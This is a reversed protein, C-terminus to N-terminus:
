KYDKDFFFSPYIPRKAWLWNYGELNFSDAAMKKIPTFVAEPKEIFTIKNIKRNKFYINMTSCKANNSGIFKGADNKAFYLSQANQVVNVFNLQDDKFFGYLNKGKVQDSITRSNPYVVFANELIELKDIKQNKMAITIEIGTMQTSDNWIVPDKYFRFTSDSFSYFLSDCIAQMGEKYLRTHHYAFFDRTTDTASHYQSLLTDATLYMSDKGLDYIMWANQWVKVFSIAEKYEAKKGFIDIKKITDNWHFNDLLKGFGVKREYYLSDSELTNEGDIIKTNKGFSAVDRKTDFWGNDCYISSSKNDIITNGFFTTFDNDVNYKLTDSSLHYEPDTIDVNKNFYIDGTKTFYYAKRSKIISQERYVTGGNLYYAKKIANDYFVEESMLQMKNDTLVVKGRMTLLKNSGNYKLTNSTGQIENNHFQVNGYADFSNNSKTLIARDCFLLIQDQRLQVNGTLETIREGNEESFILNDANLIEVEKKDTSTTTDVQQAVAFFCYSFSLLLLFFNKM